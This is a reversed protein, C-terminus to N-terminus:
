DTLQYKALAIRNKQRRAIHVARAARAKKLGELRAPTVRSGGRKGLAAVYRSITPTLIQDKVSPPIFASRYRTLGQGRIPCTAKCNACGPVALPNTSTPSHLQELLVKHVNLLKSRRSQVYATQAEGEFELHRIRVLAGPALGCGFLPPWSVPCWRMLSTDNINKRVCRIDYGSCHSM